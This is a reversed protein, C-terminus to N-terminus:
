IRFGENRQPEIPNVFDQSVLLIAESCHRDQGAHGIMNPIDKLYFRNGLRYSSFCRMDWWAEILLETAIHQGRIAFAEGDIDMPCARACAGCGNCRGPISGIKMLSLRSTLRLIIASPCLYKCYARQDQLAFAIVIATTYYIAIAILLALLSIQPESGVAPKTSVFFLVGAGISTAILGAFPTFRWVGGRRGPGRAIPLLELIMARWCGWSCLFRGFFLPGIFLTVLTHGIAAGMVSSFPELLFGELDIDTAGLVPFVLISVGGAFLVARRAAQKRARPALAYAALCPGFSWGLVFLAAALTLAHLHLQLWISGPWLTVTSAIALGLLVYNPKYARIHRPARQGILAFSDSV